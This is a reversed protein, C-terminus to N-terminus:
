REVIRIGSSITLKNIGSELGWIGVVATSRLGRMAEKDLRWDMWMEVVEIRWEVEGKLVCGGNEKGNEAVPLVL